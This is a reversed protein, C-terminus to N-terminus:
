QYGDLFARLRTRNGALPAAVDVLESLRGRRTNFRHFRSQASLGPFLRVVTARDPPRFLV